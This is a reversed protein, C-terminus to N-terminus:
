SPSCGDPLSAAGKSQYMQAFMRNHPLSIISNTMWAVLFSLLLVNFFCARVQALCAHRGPQMTGQWGPKGAQGQWTVSLIWWPAAMTPRHLECSAVDRFMGEFCARVQALCAHRGPQVTGWWGPKGAQGQWTVSLIWWPAAM